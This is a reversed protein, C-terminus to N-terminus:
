VIEIESIPKETFPVDVARAVDSEDVPVFDGKILSEGHEKVPDEAKKKKKPPM